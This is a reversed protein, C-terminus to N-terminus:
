KQLTFYFISGKGLESEVWIRGGHREIIKRCIALGIGTGPYDRRKHLRKFVEFIRDSHKPDIGIGNDQVAFLWQNDEEKVTINIKPQDKSRFKIANNILNQFVQSIQTKDAIIIPLTEHKIIADNESILVELNSLVETYVSELDTPKLENAQTTVRSFDLLDDILNQMRTAGDVSFKIYKDAKADLEGKYRRELLQLYSAIMRLPEQLDHSSIYAFQELEANSRALEDLRLKLVKEAEKRETIDRASAFVGIVNNSNDRYVSANYLVPTIQGNKHKIELAYDRVLGDHFVQKYGQRAKNPDTFYHSFDTGIIEDRSFGTAVETSNNVDTIKGDPGITVLPDLSAEILSRNYINLLELAKESKKFQTIDNFLIAVERSEPDGIKFAYVDYWRNLAKAENIFRMPKGTLAIKGYIEFWHKEHDPALDRMLKGQADFLGTQNEFAPNIELFRYDIPNNNDDFIVEVTCFGEDISNFLTLYHEKSQNLSKIANQLESTRAEVMEELQKRYKTLEAESQKRETIDRNTEIIIKKGSIDKILQQRTEVIIKQGNKATHTIEGTWMEDKTLIENFKNFEIPFETKLLNHSIQGIAENENYGYLREAGQNWSLIGGDYDWSFIAEYSVNLLASQRQLTEEWQKRETIDYNFSIYRIKGNLEILESSRTIIRKEGSKTHIEFEIDNILEKEKSKNIYQERENADLINLEAINFGILEERSYGTLKSYSENIDIFKNGDSITMPAPNAHFVKSFKEENERLARNVDRLEFTQDILEENAVRLEETTCQLEENSTQLEESLLQESELLEQKRKEAHKRETIDHAITSVGIINNDSNLIPSISLSVDILSGDKRKRLTDYHKISEGNKIKKMIQDIDNEFNTPLLISIPKGIIEDSSYGYMKQASKNWSNINANLDKGIIANDSSEVIAALLNSSKELKKRETIDKVVHVSGTFHGDDDFIPSVSVSYYGDLSEIPFEKEHYKKDELLKSHPCFDPPVDTGHVLSFCTLGIFDEPKGNLRDAMAKNVKKIRHNIDIIAILNHLADFTNEWENNSRILSSKSKNHCENNLFEENVM